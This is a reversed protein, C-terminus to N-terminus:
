LSNIIANDNSLAVYMNNITMDANGETQVFVEVKAVDDAFSFNSLDFMRSNLKGKLYTYTSIFNTTTGEPTTFNILSDSGNRFRITLSIKSAYTNHDFIINIYRPNGSVTFSKRCVGGGVVTFTHDTLTGSATWTSMDHYDTNLNDYNNSFKLIPTLYSNYKNGSVSYYDITEGNVLNDKILNTESLGIYSYIATLKTINSGNFENNKIILKEIVESSALDDSSIVIGFSTNDPDGIFTNNTIIGGSVEESIFLGGKGISVNNSLIFDNYQTQVRYGYASNNKAVCNTIKGNNGHMLVFGHELNDYSYCNNITCNYASHPAIGSNANDHAICNEIIVEDYNDGISEEYCVLGVATILSNYNGNYNFECERIYAKSNDVSSMLRCGHSDNNYIKSKLLYSEKATLYLCSNLAFNNGDVNIKAHIFECNEIEMKDDTANPNNTSISYGNNDFVINKLVNSNSPNLMYSSSFSSSAKITSNNGILTNNNLTLVSSILYVEQNLLLKKNQSYTLANQLKITDDETGDGVVGFTKVNVENNYVLEAVLNNDYLEVIDGDNVVDDNTIERVKYLAGGNDNINYYGLTRCFSGNTLNEAVKMDGVTNYALVGALQIYQAIIDALEGSEAMEDLKNNIEEQVDLNDFYHTVYEQLEKVVESNNNVIPIVQNELFKVLFTVCEYYTMSEIYATPLNGITMCLGKLPRIKELNNM